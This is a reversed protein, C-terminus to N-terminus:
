QLENGGIGWAAGSSENSIYEKAKIEEFTPRKKGVPESSARGKKLLKRERKSLYVKDSKNAETREIKKILDEKQEEGEEEKEKEQEQKLNAKYKHSELKGFMKKIEEAEEAFAETKLAIVTQKPRYDRLQKMFDEREKEEEKRRFLPHEELEEKKKAQSVAYKSASQRM